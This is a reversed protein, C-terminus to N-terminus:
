LKLFIINPSKIKIQEANAEDVSITLDNEVKIIEVNDNDFPKNQYFFTLLLFFVDSQNNKIINIFKPFTLVDSKCFTNNIIEDIECLSEKQYKYGNYMTLPLHCLILKTDQKSIVGKQDFNIMHFIIKATQEFTGTYLKVMNSVFEKNNLYEDKDRDFSAFLKEAIFLSIKMFDVFVIKSIGQSEEKSEVSRDALDKYIETLYKILKRKNSIGSCQQIREFSIFDGEEM